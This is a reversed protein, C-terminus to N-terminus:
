DALDSLKTAFDDLDDVETALDLAANLQALDFVELLDRARQPIVGFRLLVLRDVAHRVSQRGEERGEERGEQRGKELGEEFWVEAIARMIAEGEEDDVPLLQRVIEEVDERELPAKAALYTLGATVWELVTKPEHLERVLAALEPLRERVDEAWFLEILRIVLRMQAAGVLHTTDQEHLDWLLFRLQPMYAKFAAPAEILDALETTVHWAREGHYLVVPLVPALSTRSPDAREEQTWIREIYRLVQRVTMKDAYSKHEVLIYVLGEGTQERFQVRFLADSQHQQLSADIFSGEVPTLTDVDVAQGIEAPLYHTVFDKVVALDAFAFRFLRDHPNFLRTDM